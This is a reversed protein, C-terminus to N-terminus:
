KSKMLEQLGNKQHCFSRAKPSETFTIQQVHVDGDPSRVSVDYVGAVANQLLLALQLRVKKNPLTHELTQSGSRVATTPLTLVVTSPGVAAALSASPDALCEFAIRLRQAQKQERLMELFIWHTVKIAYAQMNDIKLSPESSLKEIVRDLTRDALVEPEACGRWAFLRVLKTHLAVYDTHLLRQWASRRDEAQSAM